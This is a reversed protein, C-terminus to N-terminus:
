RRLRLVPPTFSMRKGLVPWGASPDFMAAASAPFALALCVVLVVGTGRWLMQAIGRIGRRGILLAFSSAAAAILVAVKPDVTVGALELLWVVLLGGGGGSGGAVVANPHGKM